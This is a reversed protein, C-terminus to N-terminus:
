NNIEKYLVQLFNELKNKYDYDSFDEAKEIYKKAEDFKGLKILSRAATYAAFPHIWKEESCNLHLSEAANRLAENYNGLQYHSESLYFNAECMLPESKVYQLYSNISDVAAKFNGQEVLNSLRILTLEDNYIKRSSFLKGRRKAYIDDDLDM